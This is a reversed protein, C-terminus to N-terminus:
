PTAESQFTQQLNNLSQDADNASQNIDNMSQGGSSAPTSVDIAQLTSQLDNLAQDAEAASQDFGAGPPTPQALTQDSAPTPQTQPQSSPLPAQGSNTGKISSCGPLLLGTGVLIVVGFLFVKKM